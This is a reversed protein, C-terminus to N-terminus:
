SMWLTIALVFIILTFSTVALVVIAFQADDLQVRPEKEFEPKSSNKMNLWLM